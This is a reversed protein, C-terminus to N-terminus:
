RTPTKATTATPRADLHRHAPQLTGGSSAWEDGDWATEVYGCRGTKPNYGQNYSYGGYPGYYVSRSGYGGTNPNYWSGHGYSRTTRTTTAATTTRRTTIARATTRSM